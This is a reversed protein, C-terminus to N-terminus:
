TELIAEACCGLCATIFGSFAKLLAGVRQTLPLKSRFAFSQFKLLAASECNIRPETFVVDFRVLLFASNKALTQTKLLMASTFLFSLKSHTHRCVRPLASRRWLFSISGLFHPESGHRLLLIGSTRLLREQVMCRGQPANVGAGHRVVAPRRKGAGDDAHAALSQGHPPTREHPDRKPQSQEGRPPLPRQFDGGAEPIRGVKSVIPGYPEFCGVKEKPDYREQSDKRRQSRHVGARSRFADFPPREKETIRQLRQRPRRANPLRPLSNRRLACGSPSFRSFRRHIHTAPSHSYPPVGSISQVLFTAPLNRPDSTVFATSRRAHSVAVAMAQPPPWCSNMLTTKVLTAPSRSVRPLGFAPDELLTAM